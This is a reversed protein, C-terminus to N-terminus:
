KHMGYKGHAETKALDEFLKTEQFQMIRSPSRILHGGFALWFAVKDM